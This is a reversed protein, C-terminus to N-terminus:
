KQENKNQGRVIKMSPSRVFDKDRIIIQNVRQISPLAMNVENIRDRLYKEKDECEVTALVVGRPYVELILGNLEENEYVLSDQVVDIENFKTEIEAPFINEGNSLVIIEKKRGVIYLFGEEDFRVLDGTKFWGDEYSSANEEPEGIYGEMMNVGKLWLEGDVVKYEMGEYILGVSAPKKRAEPNGSVLNASETMGYGPLLEVGIKDYEQVLYPSVTAAGCIITKLDPGMMNRGFQKSLNIAMEALAPVLVMITPKFVAIDKFMDKNNRCIFLASGTYLSTLMNRVLGFVHTLPLVLLYRENFISKIGYCGNKTGRMIARNSLLAGKSKGTTGGTFLVTCPDSGAVNQCPVSNEGEVSDPFLKFDPRKEKLFTLKSELAQSYVMASLAFKMSCGFVTMEDLQPPLLVAVAGITTVALYTKVFDKCNPIYIGVNDGKKVGNELLYSRMRAVQEELDSFTYSEGNDCIATKDGYESVSHAWMQSVSEFDVIKAYTEKDTYKEFIGMKNSRKAKKAVYSDCHAKLEEEKEQLLQNIQNIEDMSPLLAGSKNIEIPEGVVIIRREYWKKPEHLYIPLIPKKAKYAMLVAGSKFTLFANGTKNVTGEPFVVVAKDQQLRECVQHFTGMNFNEKDVMICHMKNFFFKKLKSSYLDKTAISHLRRYWLACLLAVPDTFTVHNAAILVGGKIRQKKGVYLIKPRLWLMAPIAGTVKVFDYLFNGQKKKKEKDKLSM